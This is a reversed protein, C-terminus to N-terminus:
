EQLLLFSRAFGAVAVVTLGPCVILTLGFGLPGGSSMAAKFGGAILADCLFSLGGLVISAGAFVVWASPRRLWPTEKKSHWAVEAVVAFVGYIFLGGLIKTEPTLWRLVPAVVLGPVVLGVVDALITSSTTVRAAM